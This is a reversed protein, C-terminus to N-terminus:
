KIWEINPKGVYEKDWVYWAYAITGSNKPKDTGYPYLQVRKCFVYVTKLPTTTFLKFRGISELFSLKLFMAIKRGGVDLSHWIFDEAQNFPPNTIIDCGRRGEDFFNNGTQIDTAIVNYKNKELVLVMAGDGCAVEWVTQSFSERDLLSQTAWSPTAYHDFTSKERRGAISLGKM